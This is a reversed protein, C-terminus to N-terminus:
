SAEEALPLVMFFCCLCENLIMNMCYALTRVIDERSLWLLLLLMLRSDIMYAGVASSGRVLVFWRAYVRYSSSSYDGFLSGERGFVVGGGGGGSSCSALTSSM